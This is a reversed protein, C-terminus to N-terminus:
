RPAEDGEGQSYGLAKLRRALEADVRIPEAGAGLTKLWTRSVDLERELARLEELLSRSGAREDAVTDLRHLGNYASNGGERVVQELGQALARVDRGDVSLQMLAPAPALEGGRLWASVDRGEGERPAELGALGILTPMVDVLRVLPAVRRAPGLHGPWSFVLPVRVVERYLTRQHGKGGHEFFEEGHDSVIAILTDEARSLRRLAELMAKLNDDTFRIEADYLAILHELDRAPMLGSIAENRTLDRVDLAGTYDPDFRRAYEPPPIYDHHVDWLHLFVFFPRKDTPDKVRAACWREVAALTRPGTIDAHSGADHTSLIQDVVHEPTAGESASMCSEWSDFGQALGYVPHLYPGGFFGATRYGAARLVEALTTRSEALRLGNDVVGHTSDYQGTFLAAHAPLTWSTTSVALECRVGQEALADIAPSTPKSYGYCGLHDYRLSDISVLVINPLPRSPDIRRVIPGEAGDRTAAPRDCAGALTCVLALWTTRSEM